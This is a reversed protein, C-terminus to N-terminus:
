FGRLMSMLKTRRKYNKRIDEVIKDSLNKNIQVLQGISDAIISYYIEGAESLNVDIRKIFYQEAESTLIKKNKKFFSFIREDAFMNPNSILELAENLRNEKEFFSLLEYPNKAKLINELPKFDSIGLSKLKSLIKENPKHNLSNIAAKNLDAGTKVCLELYIEIIKNDVFDKNDSLYRQVRDYAHEYRNQSVLLELLSIFHKQDANSIKVLIIEKKEIHLDKEIVNFLDSVITEHLDDINASIYEALLKTEEMNFCAKYKEPIEEFTDSSMLCLKKNLEKVFNIKDKFPLKKIFSVVYNVFEPFEFYEENYYDDIYLYGEDLADNLDVIIELILKGIKDPLLSELGKLKNLQNILVAAMGSPNWLLEDDNFFDSINKEVKDFIKNADKEDSKSNHIQSIFNDPAFKLVLNVLEEKPLQELHSKLFGLNDSTPAQIFDYEKISEIDIDGVSLLVAIIHKCVGFYQCTCTGHIEENDIYIEVAYEKTGNVTASIFNAKKNLHINEVMGDQYYNDGRKFIKHECCCEIDERDLSNLCEKIDNSEAEFLYEGYKEM